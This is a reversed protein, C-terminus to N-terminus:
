YNPVTIGQKEFIGVCPFRSSKSIPVTAASSSTRGLLDLTNRTTPEFCEPIRVSFTFTGLLNPLTQTARAIAGRAILAIIDGM